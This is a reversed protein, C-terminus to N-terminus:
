PLTPMFFVPMVTGAASRASIVQKTTEAILADINLKYHAFSFPRIIDAGVCILTVGCSNKDCKAFRLVFFYPPPKSGGNKILTSTPM